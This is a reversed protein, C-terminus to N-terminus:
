GLGGGTLTALCCESVGLKKVGASPPLHKGEPQFGNEDGTYKVM